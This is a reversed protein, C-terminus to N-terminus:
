EATSKNKNFEEILNDPLKVTTEKWFYAEDLLNFMDEPMFKFLEDRYYDSVKIKM